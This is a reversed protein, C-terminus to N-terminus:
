HYAPDRSLHHSRRHHSVELVVRHHRNQHRSRQTLYPVLRPLSYLLARINLENSACLCADWILSPLARSMHLWCRHVLHVFVACSIELLLYGNKPKNVCPLSQEIMLELKLCEDDNCRLAVSGYSAYLGCRRGKGGLFFLM